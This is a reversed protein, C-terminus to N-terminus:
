HRLAAVRRSADKFHVDCGLVREYWELAQRSDQLDEYARGMAYFIGILDEDRYQPVQLARALVKLAIRQDGKELFCAGLMEIARLRHDLGRAAIQFEAIAEDILGMEKFALGLDYHSAADEEEIAEAVKSKFQNLMEAFNVDAESKPDSAPIRFRTSKEEVEELVMSGLDVYDAPAAKAPARTEPAAAEPRDARLMEVATAARRNKPDLELVRKYVILAKGGADTRDLCDALDLYAEILGARDGAKLALEVRKQYAGVDNVDLRLLADIVLKAEAYRGARRHLDLAEGLLKTAREREGTELVTEALMVLLGPERGEIALRTELEAARDAPSAVVEQPGVERTELEEIGTDPAGIEELWGEEVPEPREIAEAITDTEAVWDSEEEEMGEDALSTPEIVIDEGLPPGEVELEYRETEDVIATPEIDVSGDAVDITVEEPELTEIELGADVFGVDLEPLEDVEPIESGLVGVEDVSGPAVRVPEDYPLIEPLEVVGEADLGTATSAEPPDVVPDRNPALELIQGRVEEADAERGEQVLDRWALRLQEVAHGMREHEILQEAILLRVEPDPSLSAFEVLASFAEDLQGARQMREAYELVHKKADSLFGTAAGIKGLKQYASHRNPQNRLIKNCLAIANNYFGAALHGDAALEYYHVARNIDGVRRYLDGIRNYMALDVERRARKDAQVANEYEEIARKWNERQEFTRARQRYTAGDTM